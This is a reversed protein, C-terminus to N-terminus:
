AEESTISEAADGFTDEEGWLVDYIIDVLSVRTLIGVLHKSDDVVPVYKVGRKLIRQLSDRVLAAEKVYFVKPNIIDGISTAKGRRRERDITEVDVFGKLINEEDVVLLTDVRKERMLRIANQLSKEPTISVATHMMIEGVTTTDPKAQLLRDEGLLEEVFENAPKQLINEPTDFQIVKGNDMIAIRSALKLAEDMDHTVFVITKGLREQLDKVLDQLSDRTIPDLAGFPEDMLIVDQDAALARVVGIRQQQGGSLEHPYRDLMDRPLEVLDIMKEATKNQEAKDVKLLRQVLTINDRITMHPMLGINQIVYGIQRRLEVPNKKQIDEGNIKITGKTPDIMRNIMRMTTTKGSGSTGILCIFEGKDFSLNIDEVAVKNGNYIKSVHDFEIM